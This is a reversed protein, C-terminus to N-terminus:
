HRRRNRGLIGLSALGSGLLLMAPPIPVAKVDGDRVAWAFGVAPYRWKQQQGARWEFDFMFVYALGTEPDIWPDNGYFYGVPGEELNVFPGKNYFWPGPQYNGYIDHRALNGLNVYYMYALESNPNSINFGIDTTGNYSFNINQLPDINPLRWDSWTVDRVSDYYELNDTWTKAETYLVEGGWDLYGSTYGYNADQLWTVDLMDDYILGGGRDILAANAMGTM